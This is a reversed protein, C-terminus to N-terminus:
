TKITLLLMSIQVLSCAKFNKLTAVISLMEKQMVRYKQQSKTLKRSVYAVLRGEQMICTGLQFDSAYTYINFQKNHVPYATLADAAMLLRMKNFAKQM